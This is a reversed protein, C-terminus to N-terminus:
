SQPTKTRSPVRSSTLRNAALRSSRFRLLRTMLRCASCSRSPAPTPKLQIPRSRTFHQERRDFIRSRHTRLADYHRVHPASYAYSSSRRISAHASACRARHDTPHLDPPRSVPPSLACSSGNGPCCNTCARRPLDAIRALVEALWAKPDVDNLRCTTIMTLMIAARGARRQSRAFTWNRRGLAIGRLAREACNNTLCIKGDDLFRAFDDWRRLMYNM